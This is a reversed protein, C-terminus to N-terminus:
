DELDGKETLGRKQADIVPRRQAVVPDPPPPNLTRALFDLAERLRDPITAGIHDAGHVLHYEHLVGHDYLIRHLFETGEYLWFMDLDGCELYIQLGASKLRKPDHHAIAAPNNAEWYAEDIPSGYAAEMLRDDRWFRHKPRVEKWALVPEIGPEMAAVAGFRDPYKFAMRLSGMGGMSIGTLLTGERDRRVNYNERLFALFPGVLFTEWKETGDRYDMYFCRPTVSPCVVVMPPLKGEAWMGDYVPKLRSLVTRDGGGGHLNYLLPIPPGSPDYGPPLLVLYPVPSPVLDSAMEAEILRSAEQAPAAPGLVLTVCVGLWGILLGRM